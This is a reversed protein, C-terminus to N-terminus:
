KQCLRMYFNSFKSKNIIPVIPGNKKSALEEQISLIASGLYRSLIDKSPIIANIQQNCCADKNLIGTKGLIGICTVVVTGKPLQRCVKEYALKSVYTETHDIVSLKNESIDGPKVFMVDCSSYYMEDQTSPTSGTVITGVDGLRKYEWNHKM